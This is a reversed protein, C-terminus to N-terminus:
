GAKLLTDTYGSPRMWVVQDNLYRRIRHVVQTFAAWGVGYAPNLGQWHTYFLCYPSQARVLDVVRGAQGDASIYYDADVYAPDNRWIGFRDGANPPLIFVGYGGAMAMLTAEAVELEGGFFCPVTHGRFRGAKALNLLAQWVNPNPDAVGEERLAQYRRTCADCGCGPWTLGTFRIGLQEGESLISSFYSEYDGVSVAPEYMWLGEHIAGELLQNERFNFLGHHTYLECHSDIGCDYARQVQAIYAEPSDSAPLRRGELGNWDYGLIVSSEGAIGESAVFDLFIKFAEPPAVYPNTDDVYFSLVTREMGM